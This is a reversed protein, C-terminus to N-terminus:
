AELRLETEAGYFGAAVVGRARDIRIQANPSEGPQLRAPDDIVGTLHLMGGAERVDTIRVLRTLEALAPTGPASKSASLVTQTITGSRTAPDVRGSLVYSVCAPLPLAPLDAVARFAFADKPAAVRPLAGAVAGGVPLAVGAAGALYLFGRRNLANM